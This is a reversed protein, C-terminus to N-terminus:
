RYCNPVGVISPHPRRHLRDKKYVIDCIGGCEPAYNEGRRAALFSKGGFPNEEPVADDEGVLIRECLAIGDDIISCPVAMMDHGGYMMDFDKQFFKFHRLSELYEEVSASEELNLLTNANCADGSFLIRRRRDLFVVTGYTHGPVAIVELETGGLDFRDGEYIPYTKVAHADLTDALVPVTRQKLGFQTFINVFNLRGERSSHREAYMLAIDDPHLFVESYEWAAGIHDMHGHTAAMIVPLDTLERIFAKLSGVGSLGDILLARESGEVLYCNERGMGTIRFIGDDIKVAEFFKNVMHKEQTM